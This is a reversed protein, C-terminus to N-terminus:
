HPRERLRALPSRAGLALVLRRPCDRPEGREGFTVVAHGRRNAAWRAASAGWWTATAAAALRSAANV